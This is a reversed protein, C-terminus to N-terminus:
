SIPMAFVYITLHLTEAIFAENPIPIIAYTRFALLKVGRGIAM